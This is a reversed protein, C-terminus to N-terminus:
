IYIYVFDQLKSKKNTNKNNIFNFRSTQTPIYINLCYIFHQFSFSCNCLVEFPVRKFNPIDISLNEKKLFFNMVKEFKEKEDTKGMERKTQISNPLFCKNSVLFRGNENEDKEKEEIVDGDEVKM